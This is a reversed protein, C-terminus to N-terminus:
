ITSRDKTGLTQTGDESSAEALLIYRSTFCNLDGALVELHGGM